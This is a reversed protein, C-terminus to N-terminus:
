YYSNSVIIMSVQSAVELSVNQTQIVNASQTLVDAVIDVNEGIQDSTENASSVISTINNIVSNVNDASVNVKICINKMYTVMVSSVQQTSNFQESVVTRCQSVSPAAWNLRSVCQRTPIEETPGYFCSTRATTNVEAENWNFFGRTGEDTTEDNCYGFGAYLFFTLHM